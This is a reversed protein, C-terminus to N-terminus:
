RHEVDGKGQSCQTLHALHMDHRHLIFAFFQKEDEGLIRSLATVMGHLQIQTSLPLNKTKGTLLLPLLRHHGRVGASVEILGIRCYHLCASKIRHTVAILYHFQVLVTM